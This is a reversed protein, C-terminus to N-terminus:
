HEGVKPTTMRPPLGNITRWLQYWIPVTELRVWATTQTGVKLLDGKPWPENPDEVVYAYFFGKDYSISDIKKSEKPLVQNPSGSSVSYPSNLISSRFLSGIRYETSGLLTVPKILLSIINMM